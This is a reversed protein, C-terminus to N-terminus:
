KSKVVELLRARRDEPLNMSEIVGRAIAREAAPLTALQEAAQSGWALSRIANQLYPVRRPDSAPLEDLWKTAAEPQSTRWEAFAAGGASLAGSEPLHSAWDLTEVPNRRALERALNEYTWSPIRESGAAAVYQAMSKPDSGAW